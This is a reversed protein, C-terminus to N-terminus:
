VASSVVVACRRLTGKKPPIPDQTTTLRQKTAESGGASFEEREYVGASIADSSDLM